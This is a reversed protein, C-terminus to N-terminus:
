SNVPRLDGALPRKNNPGGPFPFVMSTLLSQTLLKTIVVYVWYLWLTKLTMFSQPKPYVSALGDEHYKNETEGESKLSLCHGM